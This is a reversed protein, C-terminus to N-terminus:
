HPPLPEDFWVRRGDNLEVGLMHHALKGHLDTFSYRMQETQLPEGCELCTEQSEPKPARDRCYVNKCRKVPRTKKYNEVSGIQAGYIQHSVESKDVGVRALAREYGISRGLEAFVKAAQAKKAALDQYTAHAKDWKQVREHAKVHADFDTELMVNVIQQAKYVNERQIDVEGKKVRMPHWGKARFEADYGMGQGPKFVRSIRGKTGPTMGWPRGKITGRQGREYEDSMGM